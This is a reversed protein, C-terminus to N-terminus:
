DNWGDDEPEPPQIGYNQNTRDRTIQTRVIEPPEEPIVQQAVINVPAKLTEALEESRIVELTKEFEAIDRDKEERITKVMFQHLLGSMTAGRLRSATKFELRKEPAVRLNIIKDKGKSTKVNVM